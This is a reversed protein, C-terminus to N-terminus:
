TISNLLREIDMCHELETTLIDVAMKCTVPDVGNDSLRIITRYGEAGREEADHITHLIMKPDHTEIPHWLAAGSRVADWDGVPYVGLQKLRETIRDAHKWEDKMHEKFEAIADFMGAGCIWHYATWYQYHSLLETNLTRLLATELTDADKVHKIIHTKLPEM